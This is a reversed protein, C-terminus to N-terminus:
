RERWSTNEDTVVPSRALGRGCTARTVVTPKQPRSTGRAAFSGIVTDAETARSASGASCRISGSVPSRIRWPRPRIRRPRELNVYDNVGALGEASVLVMYSHGDVTCAAEQAAAPPSAALSFLVLPAAFRAISTLV